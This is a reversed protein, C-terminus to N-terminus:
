AARNCHLFSAPDTPTRRAMPPRLARATCSIPAPPEMSGQFPNPPAPGPHISDPHISDPHIPDPHTLDSHNGGFWESGTQM